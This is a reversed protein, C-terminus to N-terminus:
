PGVGGGGGAWEGGGAGEGIIEGDTRRVVIYEGVDQTEGNAGIAWAM